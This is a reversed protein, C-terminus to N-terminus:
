AAASAAADKLHRRRMHLASLLTFFKWQEGLGGDGDVAGSGTFELKGVVRKEAGRFWTLSDDTWVAVIEKGDSSEGLVRAGAKVDASTPRNSELRVLKWGYTSKGSRLLATEDGHSSRWEFKEAHRESGSGIAVVFDWTERKLGAHRHFQEIIEGDAKTDGPPHPYPVTIAANNKWQSGSDSSAVCAGDVTSGHHLALTYKGSWYCIEKCKYLPSTDDTAINYIQTRSWWSGGPARYVKFADPLLM